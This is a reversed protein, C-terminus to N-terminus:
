LWILNRIELKLKIMGLIKSNSSQMNQVKLSMCLVTSFNTSEHFNVYSAWNKLYLAWRESENKNKHAKFIINLLIPDETLNEIVENQEGGEPIITLFIPNLNQGINKNRINLFLSSSENWETWGNSIVLRYCTSCTSWTQKSENLNKAHRCLLQIAGFIGQDLALLWGFYWLM